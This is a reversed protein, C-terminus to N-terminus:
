EGRVKIVLSNESRRARAPPLFESDQLSASKGPVWGQPALRVPDPRQHTHTPSCGMSSTPLLAALRSGPPMPLWPSQLCLGPSARAHPLRSFRRPAQPTRACVLPRKPTGPFGTPPKALGQVGHRLGSGSCALCPKLFLLSGRVARADRAELTEAREPM